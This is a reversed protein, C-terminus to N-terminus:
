STDAVSVPLEVFFTSGRGPGPSEAWVRGRHDEVIRKIIYLGLGMGEPRAKKADETRAFKTFLKPIDEAKIGMGHDEVSVLLQDKGNRSVKKLIVSVTGKDSYKIANDVLNMMVEHLKDFDATLTMDRVNENHFEFEIGKARATEELEQLVGRIISEINVEKLEYRIKGSEIRSLDLLDSVLKALTSSSILVRNLAEKISDPIKGFSEELVMSTYGKIVTLPARLQHGAISIFESKADDLKKLEENAFSLETALSEIKERSEVERNMARILLWFFFASATLILGQLLYERLSNSRFFQLLFIVLLVASIIETSIFRINLVRHKAIAYGILVVMALTAYPGAWIYRYNNFLPLFLNFLSGGTATILTGAFVYKLQLREVPTVARFRRFMLGFAGGMYALFFIVFFIYAPGLIIEKGWSQIHYKAIFTPQFVLYAVVVVPIHLALHHWWRHKYAENNPFHIGFYLFYTAILGACIYYFRAWAIGNEFDAIRFMAIGTTWLATSVVALGYSINIHDRPNKFIITSAFGLNIFAAIFLLINWADM